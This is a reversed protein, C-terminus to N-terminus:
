HWAMPVEIRVSISPCRADRAEAHEKLYIHFRPLSSHFPRGISALGELYKGHAQWDLFSGTQM